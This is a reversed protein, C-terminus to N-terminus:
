RALWRRLILTEVASNMFFVATEVGPRINNDLRAVNRMYM